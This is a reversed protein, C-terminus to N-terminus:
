FIDRNGTVVNAPFDEAQTEPMLGINFPIGLDEGQGIGPDDSALSYDGGAANTFSSDSEINNDTQSSAAIWADYTSYHTNAGWEIFDTDEVGFCNNNYVNGSGYTGDNEGGRMAALAVYTYGSCINNKFINNNIECSGLSYATVAISARGGIITNNYILNNECTFDYRADCKIGAPIFEVSGTTNTACDVLLNGYVLCHDCIELFIGNGGCTNLYNNYIKVPNGSTAKVADVWIGCGKAQNDGSRDPKEDHVYNEYIEIGQMLDTNDFIKIGKLWDTDTTYNGYTENRRIVSDYVRFEVQIGAEGNNYFVGDELIYGSVASSMSSDGFSTGYKSGYGVCNRMIVGNGCAVGRFNAYTAHRAVIGDLEIYDQNLSFATNEVSAEVLSWRTDPDGGTSYVYLQNPTADFFWDMDSTCAGASAQATGLVGDFFVRAVYSDVFTAVYRSGSDVEFGSVPMAGSLIPSESVVPKYKITHGATGASPPNMLGGYIIGGFDSIWIIDDPSFSESNHKGVSMFTSIDGDGTAAAKNAATGGYAIYYESM